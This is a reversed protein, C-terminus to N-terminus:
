WQYDLGIRIVPFFKLKDAKDQLTAQEAAINSDGAAARLGDSVALSVDPRGYAAGLDGYLGLGGRQPRHGFGIGFYPSLSKFKVTGKAWEGAANYQQNNITIQGNTVVANGDFKNTGALLGASVRFPGLLFADYYAGLTSLKLSGHYDGSSTSVDRSYSLFNAELRLATHTGFAHGYGLTAGTTGIGFYIEKGKPVAAPKETEAMASGAVFVMSMLVVIGSMCIKV